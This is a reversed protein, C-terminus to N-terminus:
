SAIVAVAWTLAALLAGTFEVGVLLAVGKLAHVTSTWARGADRCSVLEAVFVGLVFGILLGIVPIVFFGVIGCLAGVVLISTRVEAARMRKVPWTYKIVETAVFLAAAIGLTVWGVTSREFFAWVGISGLVLLAGPLMPVIIGVLGIAIALAVLVLGLPSM